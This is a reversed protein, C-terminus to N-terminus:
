DILRDPSIRRELVDKAVEVPSRGEAFARARLRAFADEVSIGLQAALMGTAMNVEQYSVAPRTWEAVCQEARDTHEILTMTALDALIVADTLRPASLTGARHRYLDLTGLHIAGVRLPFCFASAARLGQAAEAFAPWRQKEECLDAVLVAEGEAFASVAPGEGLTYQVQELEAAWEDSAGLLEQATRSQGRLTLAAADVDVVSVCVACVARAWDPEGPATRQAGIARWLRERRQGDIVEGRM